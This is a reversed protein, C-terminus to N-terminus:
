IIAHGPSEWLVSWIFPIHARIHICNVFHVYKSADSCVFSCARRVFRLSDVCTAAPYRTRLFSICVYIQRLSKCRLICVNNRGTAILEAHTGNTHTSQICSLADYSADMSWVEDQQILIGNTHAQTHTRNCLISQRM